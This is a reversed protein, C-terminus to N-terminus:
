YFLEKLPIFPSPIDPHPALMKEMWIMDYWTGAKFGCKTFHAVTKYGLKEHFSISGPNPYAICANLNLINQKKLIDELALYLRSGAQQGRCDERVYISTEASWAYAAREKFSSAYAYGLIQGDRVAALYPYKTLITEIRQRFFDM